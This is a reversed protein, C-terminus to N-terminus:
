SYSGDWYYMQKRKKPVKERLIDVPLLHRFPVTTLEPQKHFNAVNYGEFFEDLLGNMFAEMRKLLYLVENHSIHGYYVKQFDLGYVFNSRYRKTTKRKTIITTFDRNEANRFFTTSEKLVGNYNLDLRMYLIEGNSFSKTLKSAVFISYPDDCDRIHKVKRTLSESFTKEGYSNHKVNNETVVDLIKANLDYCLVTELGIKIYSKITEIKICGFCEKKCVCFHLGYKCITNTIEPVCLQQGPVWARIEYDSFIFKNILSGKNWYSIRIFPGAFILKMTDYDRKEAPFLLSTVVSLGKSKCYTRIFMSTALFNLLTQMDWIGTLGINAILLMVDLGASLICSM